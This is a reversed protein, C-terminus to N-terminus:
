NRKLKTFGKEAQFERAPLHLIFVSMEKPGRGGSSTTSWLAPMKGCKHDTLCRMQTKASLNLVGLFIALLSWHAQPSEPQKVEFHQKTTTDTLESGYSHFTVTEEM